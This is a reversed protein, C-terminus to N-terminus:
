AAFPVQLPHLLGFRAQRPSKMQQCTTCSRVYDNVWNTLGKWYFDRTIIELTKNRGFHGAVQSEHCGKAILTQLDKDAPIYLRNKYYLLNDSITWQKPLEKGEKEMYELEEKRRVWEADEVAAQWVKTLFDIEFKKLNAKAIIATSM